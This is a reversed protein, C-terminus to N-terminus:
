RRGAKCTEAVSRWQVIERKAKEASVDDWRATQRCEALDQETSKLYAQRAEDFSTAVDSYKVAGFAGGAVFGAVGILVLSKLGFAPSPLKPLKRTQDAASM